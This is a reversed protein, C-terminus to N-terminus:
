NSIEGNKATIYTANDLSYEGFLYEVNINKVNDEIDTNNDNKTILYVALIIGILAFVAAIIIFLKKRPM